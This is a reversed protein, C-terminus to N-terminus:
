RQECNENLDNVHSNQDDKPVVAARIAAIEQEIQQLREEVAAEEERAATRTLSAFWAAVSATIAGFLSIGVLMLQSPSSDATASVPFRDGYGVTTVTTAAWWLAEAFGDINAGPAHREADLVALASIFILLAAASVIAQATRPLSFSGARSVLAHGV